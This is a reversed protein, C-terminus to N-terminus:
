RPRLRLVIPSGEYPEVTRIRNRLYALYDPKVLGPSNVFLLFTPPNTRTVAMTEMPGAMPSSNMNRPNSKRDNRASKEAHPATTSEANRNPTNCRFISWPEPANRM